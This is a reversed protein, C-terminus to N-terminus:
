EYVIEISEIKDGIEMSDVIEQGELVEGFNTYEGTLWDCDKTCIFFQSDNNVSKDMGRAIGLSGIKFQVDNYEAPMKGGGTGTGLPDGGQVVWDEVRHFVLGEYFGDTAKKTFNAVTKEAQEPYLKLKIQGKSTNLEAHSINKMDDEGEIEPSDAMPINTDNADNNTKDVQKTQTSASETSLKVDPNEEQQKGENELVQEMDVRQQCASLSMLLIASTIISVKLSM